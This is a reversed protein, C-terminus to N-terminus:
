MFWLFIQDLVKQYKNEREGLRTQFLPFLLAGVDMSWWVTWVGWGCGRVWSSVSWGVWVRLRRKSHNMAVVVFDEMFSNTSFRSFYTAVSNKRDYTNLIIYNFREANMAWREDNMTWRKDNTRRVFHFIRFHHNSFLISLWREVVTLRIMQSTQLLEDKIFSVCNDLYSVNFKFSFRFFISM